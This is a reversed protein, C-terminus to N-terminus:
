RSVEALDLLADIVRRQHAITRSKRRIKRRLDRAGEPPSPLPPLEAELRELTKQLEQLKSGNQADRAMLDLVRRAEEAREAKLQALERDLRAANEAEKTARATAREIDKRAQQLDRGITELDQELLPYPKFKELNASILSEKLKSVENELMPVRAAKETLSAITKDKDLLQAELPQVKDMAQKWARHTGELARLQPEKAELEDQAQQWSRHVGELEDMAKKRLAKEEELLRRAEALQESAERAVKGLHELPNPTPPFDEGGVDPLQSAQSSSALVKGEQDILWVPRRFVSWFAAMIWTAAGSLTMPTSRLIAALQAFVSGKALLEAEKESPPFVEAMRALGGRLFLGPLAAAFLVDKDVPNSM